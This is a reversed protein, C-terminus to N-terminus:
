AQGSGQLAQAECQFLDDAGKVSGGGPSRRTFGLAPSELRHELPEVRLDAVQPAGSALEYLCKGLAIVAPAPGHAWTTRTAREGAARHKAIQKSGNAM